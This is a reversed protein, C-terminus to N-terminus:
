ADPAKSVPKSNEIYDRYNRFSRNVTILQEEKDHIIDEMAWFLRIISYFVLFLWIFVATSKSM